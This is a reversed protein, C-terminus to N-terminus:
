NKFEDVNFFSLSILETYVDFIICTHAYANWLAFDKLLPCWKLYDCCGGM